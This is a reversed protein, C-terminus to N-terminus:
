ICSLRSDSDLVADGGQLIHQRNSQLFVFHVRSFHVYATPDVLQLGLSNNRLTCPCNKWKTMQSSVKRTLSLIIKQETDAHLRNALMKHIRLTEDFPIATSLKLPFLKIDVTM